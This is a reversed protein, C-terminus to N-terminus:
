PKIFKLEIEIERIVNDKKPHDFFNRSIIETVKYNFEDLAKEWKELQQKHEYQLMKVTPDTFAEDEYCGM